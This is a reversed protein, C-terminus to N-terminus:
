TGGIVKISMAMIIKNKRSQMNNDTFKTTFILAAVYLEVQINVTLFYIYFQHTYKKRPTNIGKKSIYHFSWCYDYDVGLHHFKM